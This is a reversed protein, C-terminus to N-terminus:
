RCEQEFIGHEIIDFVLDCWPAAEDFDELESLADVYTM